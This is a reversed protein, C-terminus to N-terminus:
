PNGTLRMGAVQAVRFSDVQELQLSKLVPHAAIGTSL